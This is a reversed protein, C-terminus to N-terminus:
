ECARNNEGPTGPLGIEEVVGPDFADACWNFPDDNVVDDPTLRGDLAWTGEAPLTPYVVRDIEDGCAM